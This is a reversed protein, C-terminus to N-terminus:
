LLYFITKIQDQLLQIIENQINKGLYHHGKNKGSTTRTIHEQLVLDFRGFLEVLKLFNGNNHEFLKNADGRLPLCQQALFQIIAIIQEIVNKWHRTETNLIRQTNEDITSGSELRISLEVWKKQSQLHNPSKGHSSLAESINHWNNYGNTTFSITATSFLKCCFCFVSNKNQFISAVKKRGIRWQM